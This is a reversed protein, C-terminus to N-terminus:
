ALYPNNSIFDAVNVQLQGFCLKLTVAPRYRYSNCSEVNWINVHKIYDVPMLWIM